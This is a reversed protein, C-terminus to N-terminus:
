ATTGPRPEARYTGFLRDWWPLNFGFNSDTEPARDFSARSAHRADGAVLRLSATSGAGADVRQLPQVDLHRQARGRVRVGRGASHRAGARRRDQHRALDPNRVPSLAVRHDRRHRPRRPAHPAAAVAVARPPVRRAPCLDRSRPSSDSCRRSRSGCTSLHFLGIGHGAAYLSAGSRPRRFWCGVCWRSRGRCIGLNSPWRASRGAALTRRPALVEWAAMIAFVAVAILARAAIELTPDMAEIFLVVPQAFSYRGDNGATRVGALCPFRRERGPNRPGGSRPDSRTPRM